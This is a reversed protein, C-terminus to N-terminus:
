LQNLVEMNDRYDVTTEEEELFNRKADKVKFLQQIKMYIKEAKKFKGAKFCQASINKLFTVREIKEKIPVKFLYEKQEHNIISFTIIVEDKFEEFWEHKFVGGGKKEDFTDPLHDVLKAKNKCKVEVIEYMKTTKLIKRVVSPIRYEEMDYAAQHVPNCPEGVEDLPNEHCFKTEGDVVIKVKLM